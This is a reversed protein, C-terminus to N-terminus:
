GQYVKLCNWFIHRIHLGPLHGLNQEKYGRITPVPWGGLLFYMFISSHKFYGNRQTFRNSSNRSNTPHTMKPPTLVKASIGHKLYTITSSARGPKWRCKRGPRKKSPLHLCSAERYAASGVTSWLHHIGEQCVFSLWEQQNNHVHLFLVLQLCFIAFLLGMMHYLPLADEKMYWRENLAFPATRFRFSANDATPKVYM